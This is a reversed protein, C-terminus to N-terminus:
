KSAMGLVQSRNWLTRLQGAQRVRRPVPLRGTDRRRRTQRPTLGLTEGVQALTLLEIGEIAELQEVTPVSRRLIERAPLTQKARDIAARKWAVPRRGSGSQAPRPLKGADRWRHVQRVTLGLAEAAQPITLLDSRSDTSM